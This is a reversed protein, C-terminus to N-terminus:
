CDKIHSASIYWGTAIQPGQNTRDTVDMPAPRHIAQAPGEAVPGGPRVPRGPVAAGARRGGARLGRTSGDCQDGFVEVIWWGSTCASRNCVCVELFNPTLGHVHIPDAFLVLGSFGTKCPLGRIIWCHVQLLALLDASVAKLSELNGSNINARFSAAITSEISRRSHTWLDSGFLLSRRTCTFVTM